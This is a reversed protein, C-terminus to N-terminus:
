FAAFVFNKNQGVMVVEIPKHICLTQAKTPDLPGLLEESIMKLDLIALALGISSCIGYRAEKLFTEIFFFLKLGFVSMNKM